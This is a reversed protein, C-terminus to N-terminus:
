AAADTSTHGGTFACVNAVLADQSRQIPLGALGCRGGLVAERFAETVPQVVINAVPNKTIFGVGAMAKKASPDCPGGKFTRKRSACYAIFGDHCKTGLSHEQIAQADVDRETLECKYKNANSINMVELVFKNDSNAKTFPIRGRPMLRFFQSARHAPEDKTLDSAALAVSFEAWDNREMFRHTEKPLKIPKEM